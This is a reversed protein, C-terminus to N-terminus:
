SISSKYLVLLFRLCLTRELWHAISVVGFLTTPKTNITPLIITCVPLRGTMNKEEIKIVTAKTLKDEGEDAVLVEDGIGVEEAFRFIIFQFNPVCYKYSFHRLDFLKGTLICAFM